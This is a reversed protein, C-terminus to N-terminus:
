HTVLADLRSKLSVIKHLLGSVSTRSGGRYLYKYNIYTFGDRKMSFSSRQHMNKFQLGSFDYMHMRCFM